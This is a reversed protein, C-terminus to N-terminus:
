DYNYRHIATRALNRTKRDYNNSFISLGTGTIILPFILDNQTSSQNQYGLMLFLIGIGLGQNVVHSVKSVKQRKQIISYTEIAKENSQLLSSIQDRQLLKTGEYIDIKQGLFQYKIDLRLFKSSNGFYHYANFDDITKTIRKQSDSKLANGAILLIESGLTGWVLPKINTPTIENTLFYTFTAIGTGLGTLSIGTGWDKKRQLSHIDFDEHQISKLTEKVVKPSSKISDLFYTRKNLFGERFTIIPQQSYKEPYYTTANQQNQAFLPTGIFFSCVIVLSKRFIFKM